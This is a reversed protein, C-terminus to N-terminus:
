PTFFVPSSQWAWRGSLIKQGKAKPKQGKAKPKQSKAKPKEDDELFMGM